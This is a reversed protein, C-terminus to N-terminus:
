IATARPSTGGGTRAHNAEFLSGTVSVSSGAEAALGGGLAGEGPVIWSNGIFTSGKVAVTSAFADAGEGGQSLTDSGITTTGYGGIILNGSWTSDSATLSGRYIMTGAGGLPARNMSFVMDNLTLDAELDLIGGGSAPFTADETALGNEVTLGSM